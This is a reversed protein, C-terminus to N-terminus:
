INADEVTKIKKKMETELSEWSKEFAELEM